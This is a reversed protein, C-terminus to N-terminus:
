DYLGGTLLKVAQKFDLNDRLMVYTIVDGHTNCGFCHFTGRDEYLHFSPTKEEHLPCKTVFSKGTRRLQCDGSVIEFISTQRAADVKHDWNSPGNDSIKLLHKFRSVKAELEAIKTANTAKLWEKAFWGAFEDTENESIYRVKNALKRRLLQAEQRLENIKDNFIRGVEEPYENLWETDTIKELRRDNQKLKM